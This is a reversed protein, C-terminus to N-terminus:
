IEFKLDRIKSAPGGCPARGQGHAGEGFRNGGEYGSETFEGADARPGGFADGKMEDLGFALGHSFQGLGQNAGSLTNAQALNASGQGFVRRTAKARVRTAITGEEADEFAGDVDEADFFGPGEVASVMHKPSLNGWDVANLRFVKADGREFVAESVALDAFDYDSQSGIDFPVGSCEVQGFAESALAELDRADGMTEGGPGTQLEGVFEGEAAGEFPSTLQSRRLWGTFSSRMLIRM